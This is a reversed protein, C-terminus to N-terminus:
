SQSDAHGNRRSETGDKGGHPALVIKNYDLEARAPVWEGLKKLSGPMSNRM